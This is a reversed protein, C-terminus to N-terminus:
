VARAAEDAQLQTTRRRLGSYDPKRAFEFVEDVSEPVVAVTQTERCHALHRGVKSCGKILILVGVGAIIALCTIAILVKM